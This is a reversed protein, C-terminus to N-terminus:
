LRPTGYFPLPRVASVNNYIQCWLKDTAQADAVPFIRDDIDSTDCEIFEKSLTPANSFKRACHWYDMTDRFDGHVSNFNFKYDAYRSQYGFTDANGNTENDSLTAYDVYAEYNKVAQEGLNAFEPWLYDFKDFRRFLKPLNQMYAPKPVVSLIGIVFGFEKFMYNFAAQNGVSIGHGGMKGLDTTENEFSTLVESITVPQKGGGLYKPRGIRLDDSIVGFHVLMSEFMRSGARANKELWEQLRVATRLDNITSQIEIEEINEIRVGEGGSTAYLDGKTPTASNQIASITTASANFNGASYAAQAPQKWQIASDTPLMVADGKQAFPLCSTLYDRQWARKRMKLLETQEATQVVSDDTIPIKDELNQDRYFENYILQYARFPLANIGWSGSITTGTPCPPVGMYDALSGKGWHAKNTENFNLVPFNPNAKGDDGGTIFPDFEKYVLRNPVYFYHIYADIRHMIPSLMQHMRILAESRVSFRDSPVVEQLYCVALEGFNVTMKREHSMDFKSKKPPKVKVSQFVKM